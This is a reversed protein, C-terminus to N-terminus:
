TRRRSGALVLVLGGAIGLAGAWTPITQQEEVSAKFEGVEVVNRRSTYTVGRFIVYAGAAILAVGLLTVLRM